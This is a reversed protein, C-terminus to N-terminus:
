SSMGKRNEPLLPVFRLGYRSLIASEARGDDKNRTFLKASDPFWKTALIRSQKKDSSLNLDGKWVAPKVQFTPIRLAALAGVIAGSTYGFRFMGVAGEHGSIVGVEEVCALLIKTKYREIMDVLLHVDLQHRYFKKGYPVEYIPMDWIAALEPTKKTTDLLAVAGTFGPDVGLILTRENAKEFAKSLPQEVLKTEFDRPLSVM